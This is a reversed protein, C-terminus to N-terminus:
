NTAVHVAVQESTAPTKVLQERESASQRNNFNLHFGPLDLSTVVRNDDQVAVKLAGKRCTECASQSVFLMTFGQKAGHVSLVNPHELSRTVSFTYDGAPLMANNWQTPQSLTFSGILKHNDNARVSSSLVGIFLLGVTVVFTKLLNRM